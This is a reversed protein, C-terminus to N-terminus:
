GHPDACFPPGSEGGVPGPAGGIVAPECLQLVGRYEAVLGPRHEGPDGVLVPREPFRSVASAARGPTASRAPPPIGCAAAASEARTTRSGSGLLLAAYMRSM